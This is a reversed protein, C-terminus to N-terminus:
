QCRQLRSVPARPVEYAWLASGLCGRAIGLRSAVHVLRHRRDARWNSRARRRGDTSWCCRTAAAQLSPPSPDPPWGLHCCHHKREALRRPSQIARAPSVKRPSVTLRHANPTHSHTWSAVAEPRTSRATPCLSHRKPDLRQPGASHASPTPRTSARRKEASNVVAAREADSMCGFYRPAPTYSTLVTLNGMLTCSM